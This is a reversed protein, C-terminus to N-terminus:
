IIKLIMHRIQLFLGNNSYRWYMFYVISIFLIHEFWNKEYCQIHQRPRNERARDCKPDVMSWKVDTIHCELMPCKCWICAYNSSASCYWNCHGLVEIEEWTINLPISPEM